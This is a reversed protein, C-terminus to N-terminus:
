TVTALCSLCNVENDHGWYFFGCANLTGQLKFHTQRYELGRCAAWGRRRGSCTEINSCFLPHETLAVKTRSHAVMCVGWDYGPAAFWLKEMVSSQTLDWKIMFCKFHCWSQENLTLVKRGKLEIAVFRLPGYLVGLCALCIFCSLIPPHTININCQIGILETFRSSRREAWKILVVHQVSPLAEDARCGCTLCVFWLGRRKRGECVACM